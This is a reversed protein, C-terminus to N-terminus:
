LGSHMGTHWPLPNQCNSGLKCKAIHYHKLRHELSNDSCNMGLICWQKGTDPFDRYLFKPPYTIPMSSPGMPMSSPGMYMPSPGTPILPYEAPFQYNFNNPLESTSMNTNTINPSCESCNCPISGTSSSHTSNNKEVSLLVDMITTSHIPKKEYQDSMIQYPSKSKNVM